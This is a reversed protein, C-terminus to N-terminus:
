LDYREDGVRAEGQGWGGGQVHRHRRVGRRGKQKAAQSSSQHIKSTM